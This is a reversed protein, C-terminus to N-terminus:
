HSVNFIVESLIQSFLKDKLMVLRKNITCSQVPHSGLARPKRSFRAPTWDDSGQGYLDGADLNARREALVQIGIAGKESKQLLSHGLSLSAADLMARPYALITCNEHTRQRAYAILTTWVESGNWRHIAAKPPGWLLINCRSPFTSLKWYWGELRQPVLCSRCSQVRPSDKPM